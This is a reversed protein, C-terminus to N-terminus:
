YRRASERQVATIRNKIYYKVAKWTRTKLEQPSAKICDVCDAKGPVKGSDLFLKLTKEVARVELPTWSRRKSSETVSSEGRQARNYRQTGEESDDTISTVTQRKAESPGEADDCDSEVHHPRRPTSSASSLTDEGCESSPTKRKGGSSESSPRRLCSDKETEMDSVESDGAELVQENPSIHIQDLSMGKFESLRGQELACLVKSVKALEMTGEPLRYFQRHVRIDHGLFNAMIDMEHDKLNLVTSLTSIQKRLKTSSLTEPHKAGCEKAILRIADSGRLHTEAEPRSFFFPNEDPTGCARRYAVLAEMSSLMDPTLLIPVKRNRKGRIEIRQFHQCLKQELPSLGEALDSHVGTTDRLTFASLPMKSVEGERRRNFLIVECLTLTALKSWNRKNPDKKLTKQYEERCKDLHMHMMKVDETFPLLNPTNWKAERLTQLAQSSVCVDWRKGYLSRSKQVNKLFEEGDSGAMQADCELIDAIKKLSHGLKLALSPTKYINKDEDFGAVDKVAQVVYNFNSPLYFDEIKKLKGSKRSHRLLRGIERMKQRIYEHKTKDHGHKAFLHEGLRLISKEEKIIVAVEDQHMANVLEWVKRGVGEPVPQAFACLSQIRSKGPKKTACKQALKCRSMHRWLSKRKLLAECNICHMYDGAKVEDGSQQSPILTGCGTKLVENNHARNGKNRILDLHLKREKTKLPFSTAQAVAPENSHKRILHRAMKHCHLPCYLCYHKKNYVRAGDRKKQLRLVSVNGSNTDSSHGSEVREGQSPLKSSVTKRNYTKIFKKRRKLKVPSAKSEPDCSVDSSSENVSDKSPFYDDGSGENTSDTSPCYEDGSSEMCSKSAESKAPTKSLLELSEYTLFVSDTRELPPVEPDVSVSSSSETPIKESSSSTELSNCPALVEPPSESSSKEEHSRGSPWSNSDPILESSM